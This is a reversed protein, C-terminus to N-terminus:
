LSTIRLSRFYSGGYNNSASTAIGQATTSNRSKTFNETQTAVVEGQPTYKRITHVFYDSYVDFKHHLTASTSVGSISTDTYTITGNSCKWCRINSNPTDVLEATWYKSSYKIGFGIKGVNGVIGSTIFELSYDDTSFNIAKIPRLGITSSTPTTLQYGLTANKFTVTTEGSDKLSM